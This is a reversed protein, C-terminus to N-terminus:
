KKSGTICVPLQLFASKTFLIVSHKLVEYCNLDFVRKLTLNKINRCSLIINDDVNDIVLLIKGKDLLGVKELINHINKTKPVELKFNELVRIENDKLKANLSSKLASRRMKKPLKYSFDRPKPGFTVGGGRWIPSRISGVRARGTGKQPWPKRGGGRKESRTKTSATGQRQNAEYMLIAQHLLPFNVKGNFVENNLKIKKIVKGERNYVEVEKKM